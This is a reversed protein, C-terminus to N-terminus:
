HDMVRIAEAPKRAASETSLEEDVFTTTGPPLDHPKKKRQRAEIEEDGYQWYLRRHRRTRAQFKEMLEANRAEWNWLIRIEDAETLDPYARRLRWLYQARDRDRKWTFYRQPMPEEPEVPRVLLAPHQNVFKDIKDTM